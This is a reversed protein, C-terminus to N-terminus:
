VTRLSDLLDLLFFILWATTSIPAELGLKNSNSLTQPQLRVSFWSLEKPYREIQIDIRSAQINQTLNDCTLTLSSKPLLLGTSETNLQAPTGRWNQVKNGFLKM